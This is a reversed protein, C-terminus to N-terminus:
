EESSGRLAVPEQELGIGFRELVVAVIRDRLAMLDACTATGSRNILALTHRSSIGVEGMAYGKAFGAREILWAAPLKIRGAQAPWHPVADEAMGVAGAVRALMEAAVIPNKFFSGASRMDATLKAPDIVMGKGARIERVARYVELPAPAPKGAFYKALDAYSLNPRAEAPLKFRVATVVYRGRAATNFVSSRYSFGCEAASLEVFEGTQLDLARVSEITQSVEQGYAGINQIPSGGVLGPIGAMCEMGSIGAGCLDLLLEDWDTGASVDM